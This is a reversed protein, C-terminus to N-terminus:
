LFLKTNNRTIPALHTDESVFCFRNVMSCLNLVHRKKLTKKGGFTKQEASTDTLEELM